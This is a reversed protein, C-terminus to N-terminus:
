QTLAVHRAMTVQRLHRPHKLKTLQYATERTCQKAGAPAFFCDVLRRMLSRPRQTTETALIARPIGHRAEPTQISM